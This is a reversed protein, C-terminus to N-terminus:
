YNCYKKMSKPGIIIVFRLNGAKAETGIGRRGRIAERISRDAKVGGIVIGLRGRDVKRIAIIRVIRIAVIKRDVEVIVIDLHDRIVRGIMRDVDIDILPDLDVVEQIVVISEVSKIRGITWSRRRVSSSKIQMRRSALRLRQNKM